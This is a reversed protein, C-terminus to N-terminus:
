WEATSFLLTIIYLSSSHFQTNFVIWLTWQLRQRHEEYQLIQDGRVTQGATTSFGEMPLYRWLCVYCYILRLDAAIFVTHRLDTLFTTQKKDSHITITISCVWGAGPCTLYTGFLQGSGLWDCVMVEKLKGHCADIVIISESYLYKWKRRGSVLLKLISKCVKIHECFEM